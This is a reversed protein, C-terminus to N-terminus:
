AAKKNNGKILQSFIERLQLYNAFCGPCESVEYFYICSDLNTEANKLQLLALAFFVWLGVAAVVFLGASGAKSSAAPLSSPLELLLVEAGSTGFGCSGALDASCICRWIEFM